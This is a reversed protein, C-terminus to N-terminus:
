KADPQQDPHAQQFAQLQFTNKQIQQLQPYPSLDIGWREANYLQPILCVDALTPENSFCFTTNPNVKSEIIALARSMWHNMWEKVIEETFNHKKKLYQLIKLNNIPQMEMAVDYAVSLIKARIIQEQPILVPILQIKELYDIIVLSQTLCTGDDIELTPISKAPNKEGYWDEQHEGQLLNVSVLEHNIQKLNLAIRVRYASSSRWYNYLKITKM